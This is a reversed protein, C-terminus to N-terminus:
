GLMLRAQKHNGGGGGLHLHERQGGHKAQADGEECEAHEALDVQLPSHRPLMRSAASHKNQPPPPARGACQMSCGDHGAAGEGKEGNREMESCATRGNSAPAGEAQQRHAQETDCSSSWVLLM